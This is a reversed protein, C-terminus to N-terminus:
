TKGKFTISVIWSLPAPIDGRASNNQLQAAQLWLVAGFVPIGFVAVQALLRAFRRATSSQRTRYQMVLQIEEESLSDPQNNM